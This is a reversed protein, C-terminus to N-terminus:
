LRTESVGYERLNSGILKQVSSSKNDLRKERPLSLIYYHKIHRCGGESILILNFKIRSLASPFYNSFWISQTSNKSVRYCIQITAGAVKRPIYLIQEHSM